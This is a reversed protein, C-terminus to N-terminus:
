CRAALEKKLSEVEAKAARLEAAWEEQLKLRQDRLLVFLDGAQKWQAKAGALHEQANTTWIARDPQWIPITNSAVRQALYAAVASSNTISSFTIDLSELHQLPPLSLGPEEIKSTHVFLALERIQPRLTSFLDLISLPLVPEWWQAEVAKGQGNLPNLNYTLRLSVLGQWSTLIEQMEPISLSAAHIAFRSHIFNPAHWSLVSRRWMRDKM